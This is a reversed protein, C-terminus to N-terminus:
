ADRQQPRHEDDAPLIIGGAHAAGAAHGGAGTKRGAVTQQGNVAAVHVGPGFGAHGQGGGGHVTLVRVNQDAVHQVVLAGPHQRQRLQRDTEIFALYRHLGAEHPLEPQLRRHDCFYGLIGWDAVQELGAIQDQRDVSLAHVAGVPNVRQDLCQALTTAGAHKLNLAGALPQCQFDGRLRGLARVALRAPQDAHFEGGALGGGVVGALLVAEEGCQGGCHAFGAFQGGIRQSHHAPHEGAM